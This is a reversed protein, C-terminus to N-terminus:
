KTHKAVVKAINNIVKFLAMSGTANKFTDGVHEVNEVIHEAKESIRKISQVLKIAMVAVAISLVLLIALATSLIIVLIQESTNM